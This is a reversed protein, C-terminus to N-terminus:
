RSYVIERELKFLCVPMQCHLGATSCMMPQFCPKVFDDLCRQSTCSTSDPILAILSALLMTPKISHCTPNQGLSTKAAIPKKSKYVNRSTDVLVMAAHGQCSYCRQCVSRLDDNTPKWGQCSRCTISTAICGQSQAPAFSTNSLLKCRIKCPVISPAVISAYTLLM